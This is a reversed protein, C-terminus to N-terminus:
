RESRGSADFCRDLIAVGFVTSRVGVEDWAGSTWFLGSHDVEEDGKVDDDAEEQDTDDEDLLTLGGVEGAGEAALARLGSETWAACGIEEGLEGGPRGDKEHEGGDAEGDHERAGAAVVGDEGAGGVRGGLGGGGSLLETRVDGLALWRSASRWPYLGPCM